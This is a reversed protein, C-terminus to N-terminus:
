VEDEETEIEELIEQSQSGQLSPDLHLLEHQLGPPAMRIVLHPILITWPSVFLVRFM